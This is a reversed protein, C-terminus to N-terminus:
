ADRAAASGATVLFSRPAVWDRQAFAAAVTRTVDAVSAAPVLAISSGGFGGGTMRAGLAGADRAAQVSVDLEDCSVEYDDRLSTHSADFLRGVAALDHPRSPRSRRTSALSRPSSTASGVSRSRTASARSPTTSTPAPRRRAAVRAGLTAAAAESVRRRSAYQGDNLEHSARTDTVLLVYGAGYSPSTSRSTPRRGAAATWCSPTGRVACCRPPRTWVGGTMAGAVENEARVCAAALRARAADGRSSASASSTAPPPGSPASSRLPPRCGRESRSTATSPSTSGEFRPVGGPPAGVLVGAVYAAWGSPSGPAVTGLDVEVTEGLQM